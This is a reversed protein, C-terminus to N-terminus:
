QPGAALAKDLSQKLEAYAMSTADGETQWRVVGTGDVLLVYADDGTSKNYHVVARWPQDDETVPLFHPRENEPVDKGMSKEIMGRLLRPAGGLMPMQFYTVTASQAYDIVLRRGWAAVQAQSGRSFGLVLVALKGHLADPLRISTGALTTDLAAPIRAPVGQAHTMRCLTALIGFAL